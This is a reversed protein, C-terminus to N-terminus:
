TRREYFWNLIKGWKEQTYGRGKFLGVLTNFGLMFYLIFLVFPMYLFTLNACGTMMSACIFTLGKFFPVGQISNYHWMLTIFLSNIILIFIYIAKQENPALDLFLIPWGSIALLFFGSYMWSFIM